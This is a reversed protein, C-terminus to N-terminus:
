LKPRHSQTGERAAQRCEAGTDMDARCSQAAIAALRWRAVGRLVIPEDYRAAASQSCCIAIFPSPLFVACFFFSTSVSMSARPAACRRRAGGEVSQPPAPAFAPRAGAHLQPMEALLFCRADRRASAAEEILPAAVRCGRAARRLSSLLIGAPRARTEKSRTQEV